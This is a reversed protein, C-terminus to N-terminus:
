LLYIMVNDLLFTIQISFSTVIFHLINIENQLMLNGNVLYLIYTVNNREDSAEAILTILSDM